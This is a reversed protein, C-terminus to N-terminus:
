KSVKVTLIKARRIEADREELAQRFIEECWYDFEGLTLQGKAYHPSVKSILEKAWERYTKM